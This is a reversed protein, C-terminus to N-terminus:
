KQGPKFKHGCNLCTVELKNAGLTGGVLGVPGAVFAGAAAKGLSFGKKNASLSTSGCKPCCAVGAARNEKIRQKTQGRKTLPMSIPAPATRAQPAKGAHAKAFEIGALDSRDLEVLNKSGCTPCKRAVALLRDGCARCIKITPYVLPAPTPTQEPEPESDPEPQEVDTPTFDIPSHNPYDAIADLTATQLAALCTKDALEISIETGESTLTMRYSLMKGTIDGVGVCDQLLLSTSRVKGLTSTCFLVRHSTVVLAGSAKSQGTVTCNAVVAYVVKEGKALLNEAADISAGSLAVPTGSKKVAERVTM